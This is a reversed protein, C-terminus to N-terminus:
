LKVPLKRVHLPIVNHNYNWFLPNDDNGTLTRNYIPDFLFNAIVGHSEPYLGTNISAYCEPKSARFYAPFEFGKSTINKQDL